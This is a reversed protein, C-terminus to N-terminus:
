GSSAHTGLEWDNSYFARRFVRQGLLRRTNREAYRIRGTTARQPTSPPRDRRPVATSFKFQAKMGERRYFSDSSFSLFQTTFPSFSFSLHPNSSFCPLCRTISLFLTFYFFRPFFCLVLSFYLFHFSFLPISFLSFAIPFLSSLPFICFILSFSFAISSTSSFSLLLSFLLLLPFFVSFLLFLSLSLSFYLSFIFLFVSLSFFAGGRMRTENFVRWKAACIINGRSPGECVGPENLRGRVDLQFFNNWKAPAPGRTRYRPVLLFEDDRACAKSFQRSGRGRGRGLARRGGKGDSTVSRHLWGNWGEGRRSQRDPAPRTAFASCRRHM